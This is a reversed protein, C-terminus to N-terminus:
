PPNVFHFKFYLAQITFFCLVTVDVFTNNENFIVHPSNLTVRFHDQCVGVPTCASSHAGGCVGVCLINILVIEVGDFHELM